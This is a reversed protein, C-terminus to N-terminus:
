LHFGPLAKTLLQTRKSEVSAYSPDQATLFLERAAVFLEPTDETIQTWFSEGEHEIDLIIEFARISRMGAMSAEPNKLTVKTSGIETYCIGGRVHQRWALGSMISQNWLYRILAETHPISLFADSAM